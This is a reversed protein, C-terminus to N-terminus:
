RSWAIIELLTANDGAADEGNRASKIAQALAGSAPEEDRLCIKKLGLDMFTTVAHVVHTAPGKDCCQVFSAGSPCQLLIDTDRRNLSPHDRQCMPVATSSHNIRSHPWDPPTGAIEGIVSPPPPLPPANHKM